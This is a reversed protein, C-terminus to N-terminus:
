IHAAFRLRVYDMTWTDNADRLRPALRRSLEAKFAARESIPIADLFAAGFTDLWEGLDGPLRTPRPFLEITEITFGHSELLARHAEATPFYWPSLAAGNLGREALLPYLEEVLIANNGAGGLEAVIRGGPKLARRIGAAAPGPEMWHLAANSFIADFEADFELEEGRMVRADVGREQAARVMAPSADVGVVEAGTAVLKLTLAGDGCGLDLIHEGPRPALLAILPEGLESVFRAAREYRTPDWTQSM